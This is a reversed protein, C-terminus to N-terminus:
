INFYRYVMFGVYLPMLDIKKGAKKDTSIGFGLYQILSGLLWM